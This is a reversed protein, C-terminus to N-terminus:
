WNCYSAWYNSLYGITSKIQESIKATRGPADIERFGIVCVGGRFEIGKGEGKGEGEKRNM